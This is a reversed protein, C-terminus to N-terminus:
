LFDVNVIIDVAYPKECDALMSLMSLVVCRCIHESLLAKKMM